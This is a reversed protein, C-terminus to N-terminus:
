YLSSNLYELQKRIKEEKIIDTNIVIAKDKSKDKITDTDVEKDKDKDKTSVYDNCLPEILTVSPNSLQKNITPLSNDEVKIIGHSVLL